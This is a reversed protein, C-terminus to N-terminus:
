ICDLSSESHLELGGFYSVFQNEGDVPDRLGRHYDWEKNLIYAAYAATQGRVAKNLTQDSIQPLAFPLYFDTDLGRTFFSTRPQTRDYGKMFAHCAYCSSPKNIGIYAYPDIDTRAALYVVLVAECHVDVDRTASLITSNGELITSLCSRGEGMEFVGLWPQVILKQRQARM